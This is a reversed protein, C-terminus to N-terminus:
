MGRKLGTRKMLDLKQENSPWPYSSHATFWGELIAVVWPSFRGNEQRAPPLDLNRKVTEDLSKQSVTREIVLDSNRDLQPPVVLPLTVAPTNKFQRKRRKMSEAICIHTNFDLSIVVREFNAVNVGKPAEVDM